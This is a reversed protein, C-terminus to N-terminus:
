RPPPAGGRSCGALLSVAAIECGSLLAAGWLRNAAADAAFLAKLLLWVWLPYYDAPVSDPKKNLLVPTVFTLMLLAAVPWACLFLLPAGPWSGAKTPTWSWLGNRVAFPELSLELLLALAVSAGLVWFGYAHHSRLLGLSVRAVGRSALLMAAWTVPVVWYLQEARVAGPLRYGLPMGTAVGLAYFGAGALCLLACAFVANQAPVQRALGTMLTALALVLLLGEPWPAQGTQLTPFWLGLFLGLWALFFLAFFFVPALAPLREFRRTRGAVPQM